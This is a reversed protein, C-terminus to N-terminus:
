QGGGTRAVPILLSSLRKKRGSPLTELLTYGIETALREIRHHANEAHDLLVQPQERALTDRLGKIVDVESGSTDIKIADVREGALIEDGRQMKVPVVKDPDQAEPAERRVMTESSRRRNRILWGSTSVSGLAVAEPPMDLRDAVGNIEMNLKLLRLIEENPEIALVRAAAGLRAMVVSHNGSHAGIDVFTGGEPFRRLLATLGPEDWIQGARHAEMVPDPGSRSAFNLITEGLYISSVAEAHTLRSDRKLLDPIPHSIAHQLVSPGKVQDAVPEAAVLINMPSPVDGHDNLIKLEPFASTLAEDVRDVGNWVMAWDVGCTIKQDSTRTLLNQAGSRTILYCDGGPASKLSLMAPGGLDSVKRLVDQIPAFPPASAASAWSALRGNAFLLDLKPVTSLVDKLSTPDRHFEADDECILACDYGADLVRQWARRHSLFCGIAGPKAEPAGWFHDGILDAYLVFPFDPNHADFADIREPVIGFHAASATFRELRDRDIRRNIVFVPLAM